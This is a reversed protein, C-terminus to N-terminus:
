KLIDMINSVVNMDKNIKDLKDPITLKYEKKMLEILENIFYPNRILSKYYFSHERLYKKVLQNNNIVMQIEYDM